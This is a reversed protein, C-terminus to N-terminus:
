RALPQGTRVQAGTTSVFMEEIVGDFKTTVDALRSEDAQVIATARVTQTLDPRIEVPATTVGLMQLRGPSVQVIGSASPAENEYVPIYAMGMSDKKPVPSTDPLGMPNRYYLIRGKGQPASAAPATATEEYVPVFDRGDATKKPVPSYDPKGTPDQYYLPARNATASAPMQAAKAEGATAAVWYGGAAAVTVVTTAIAALVMPTIRIENM